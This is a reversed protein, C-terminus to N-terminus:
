SPTGTSNKEPTSGPPNSVPPNTAPQITGRHNTVPHITESSNSALSSAPTLLNAETIATAALGWDSGGNWFERKWIPVTAKLSDIGFQCAEFASGRHPTSVGVVVSSEGLTLGGIRHLIAVRGADPWQRRLEAVIEELRPVVQSEYAEYEILTVGTRHEAHDRVVGSFVVVAGCHPQVCWEYITGVPLSGETLACWNNGISPPVLSSHPKPAPSSVRKEDGSMAM